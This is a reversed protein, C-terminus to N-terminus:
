RCGFVCFGSTLMKVAGEWGSVEMYVVSKRSSDVPSFVCHAFRRQHLKLLANDGPQMDFWVDIKFIAIRTVHGGGDIRLGFYALM